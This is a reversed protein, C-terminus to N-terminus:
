KSGGLSTSACTSVVVRPPEFNNILETPGRVIYNVGEEDRHVTQGRMAIGIRERGGRAEGGRATGNRDHFGSERVADLDRRGTEYEDRKEAAHINVV